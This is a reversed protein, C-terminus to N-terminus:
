TMVECEGKETHDGPQSRATEFSALYKLILADWILM